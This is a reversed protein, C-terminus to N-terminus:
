NNSENSRVSQPSQDTGSTVAPQSEPTLPMKWKKFKTQQKVRKHSYKKVYRAYAMQQRGRTTAYSCGSLLLAAFLIAITSRLGLRVPPMHGLM